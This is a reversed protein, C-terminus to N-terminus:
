FQLGGSPVMYLVTSTIYIDAHGCLKHFEPACFFATQQIFCRLTLSADNSVACSHEVFSFSVKRFLNREDSHKWSQLFKCCQLRLSLQLSRLTLGAQCAASLCVVIWAGHWDTSFMLLCSTCLVTSRFLATVMFRLVCWWLCVCVCM